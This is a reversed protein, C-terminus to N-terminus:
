STSLSQDPQYAALAAGAQEALSVAVLRQTINPRSGPLPTMLFRGKYAGGASVLLETDATAPLGESDIDWDTTGWTLSGDHHLRPGGLSSGFHFHCTQLDLVRALEDAVQSVVRTPSGGSAMAESAAHVGALYGQQLGARQQQRRGRVALETVAMGVAFLLVTTEIDDRSTISLHESPKTLFFDFWIGASLAAVAGGLRSGLAAVAVVVAVLILAADTNPFSSRVPILLACVALPGLLGAVVALRSRTLIATRRM